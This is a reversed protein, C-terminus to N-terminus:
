SLDGLWSNFFTLRANQLALMNVGDFISYMGGGRPEHAVVSRWRAVVDQPAINGILKWSRSM